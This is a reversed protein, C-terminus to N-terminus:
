ATGYQPPKDWIVQYTTVDHGGSGSSTFSQYAVDQGPGPLSGAPSAPTRWNWTPRRTTTM